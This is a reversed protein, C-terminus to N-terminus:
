EYPGPMSSTPNSAKESKLIAKVVRKLSDWQQWTIDISQRTPPKDDQNHIEVTFGEGSWWTNVMVDSRGLHDEVTQLAALTKAVNPERSIYFPLDKSKM